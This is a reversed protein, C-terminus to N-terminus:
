WKNYTTSHTKLFYLTVKCIHKELRGSGGGWVMRFGQPLCFYSTNLVRQFHQHCSQFTPDTAAVAIQRDSSPCLTAWLNQHVTFPATFGSNCNWIGWHQTWTRQRELTSSCVFPMGASYYHWKNWPANWRCCGGFSNTFISTHCYCPSLHSMEVCWYSTVPWPLYSAHLM